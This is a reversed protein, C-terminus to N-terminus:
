QSLCSALVGIVIMPFPIMLTEVISQDFGGFSVTGIETRNPAHFSEASEQTEIIAGDGLRIM